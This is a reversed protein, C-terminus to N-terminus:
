RMNQRISDTLHRAIVANALASYHRGVFIDDVNGGEVCEKFADLMDVFRCNMRECHESLPAYPRAANRLFRKIDKRLPFLVILPLAGQQRALACFEDVIKLTTRLAESGERYRGSGDFVERRKRYENSVIKALRVSPVFDLFGSSYATLYYHDLSGLKALEERRNDLLREYHSLSEM